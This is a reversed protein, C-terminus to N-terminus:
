FYRSLKNSWFKTYYNNMISLCVLNNWFYDDGLFHLTMLVYFLDLLQKKELDQRIVM